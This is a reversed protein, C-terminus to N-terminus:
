ARLFILDREIDDAAIDHMFRQGSLPFSNYGSSLVVRPVEENEFLCVGFVVSYENVVLGNFESQRSKKILEFFTTLRNSM